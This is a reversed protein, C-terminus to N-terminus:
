GVDCSAAKSDSSRSQLVIEISILSSFKRKCNRMNCDRKALARPIISVPEFSRVCSSTRRVIRQGCVPCRDIGGNGLVRGIGAFTQLRANFMPRTKSRVLWELSWLMARAAAALAAFRVVLRVDSSVM